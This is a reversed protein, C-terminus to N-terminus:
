HSSSQCLETQCKCTDTSGQGQGLSLEPINVTSLTTDFGSKGELALLARRRISDKDGFNFNDDSSSPPLNVIDVGM